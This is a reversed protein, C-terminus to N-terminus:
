QNPNIIYSPLYFSPLYFSNNFNENGFYSPLVKNSKGKKINLEKISNDKSSFLLENNKDNADCFKIGLDNLSNDRKNILYNDNSKNSNNYTNNFENNKSIYDTISCLYKSYSKKPYNFFEDDKEEKTKSKTFSIGKQINLLELNDIVKIKEKLLKIFQKLLITAIRLSEKSNCFQKLIKGIQFDFKWYKDFIKQCKKFHNIIGKEDYYKKCECKVIKKEPYKFKIAVPNDYEINVKKIEEINVSQVKEYRYKARTNAVLSKFINKAENNKNDNDINHRNNTTFQSILLIDLGLSKVSEKWNFNEIEFIKLNLINEVAKNVININDKDSLNIIIMLGKGIQLTNNELGIEAKNVKHIIFKM